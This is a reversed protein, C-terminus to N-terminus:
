KGIWICEQLDEKVRTMWSMITSEWKDIAWYHILPKSIQDMLKLQYLNINFLQTDDPEENGWPRRDM